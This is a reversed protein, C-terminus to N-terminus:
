SARERGPSCAAIGFRLEDAAVEYGHGRLAAAAWSDYLCSVHSALIEGMPGFGGPGSGAELQKNEEGQQGKRGQQQALAQALANLQYTMLDLQHALEMEFQQVCRANEPTGPGYGMEVCKGAYYDAALTLAAALVSREGTSMWPVMHDAAAFSAANQTMYMPKEWQGRTQGRSPLALLARTRM